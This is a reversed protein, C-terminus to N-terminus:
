LTVWTWGTAELGSETRNAISKLDKALARGWGGSEDPLKQKQRQEQPPTQCYGLPMPSNNHSTTTEKQV